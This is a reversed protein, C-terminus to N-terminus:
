KFKPSDVMNNAALGFRQVITRGQLGYEGIRSAPWHISRLRRLCGRGPKLKSVLGDSGSQSVRFRWHTLCFCTSLCRCGRAADANELASIQETVGFRAVNARFAQYLNSLDLGAVRHEESGQFHDVCILKANPALVAALAVSSRGQYSGLEVVVAGESLQKIAQQLVVVKELSFWGPIDHWAPLATFDLNVCAM